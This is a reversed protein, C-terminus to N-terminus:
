PLAKPTPPMGLNRAGSRGKYYIGAFILSHLGMNDSCLQLFQAGMSGPM